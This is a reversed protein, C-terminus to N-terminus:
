KAAKVAFTVTSFRSEWDGPRAGQQIDTAKVLWPGPHDLVFTVGGDSDAHRLVPERGAGQAAVAQGAIPRGNRLVKFRLSEGALVATPDTEPVLELALGVPAAWSRDAPPEGVRVFAKACKAYTERWPKRGGERWKAGVTDWAGIEKLYEEVQSDKMELTRPLSEMWLVAVAPQEVVARLSLAAKTSAGPTLERTQDAVRVGRRVIREPRVPIEPEPFRMASTADATIPVGPQVQFRSPLLWTDHAWAPAVALTL